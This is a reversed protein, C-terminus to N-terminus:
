GKGRKGRCTAAMALALAALTLTDLFSASASFFFCAACTPSKRRDIPLRLGSRRQRLVTTVIPCSPSEFWARHLRSPGM